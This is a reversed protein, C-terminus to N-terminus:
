KIYYKLSKSYLNSSINLILNSNQFSSVDMSFKSNLKSSQLQAGNISYIQLYLNKDQGLNSIELQKGIQIIELNEKYYEDAIAAVHGKSKYAIEITNTSANYTMFILHWLDGNADRLFYSKNTTPQQSSPDYWKEAIQNNLRSIPEMSSISNNYVVSSTDGLVEYAETSVIGYKLYDPPLGSINSFRILNYANNTMIGMPFTTSGKQYRKFVLDWDKLNPEFVSSISVSNLNLYQYHKTQTAQKYVQIYKDGSNDINAYRITFIRDTTTRSYNVYYKGYSGDEKQILYIKNAYAVYFPDTYFKGIGIKFFLDTSGTYITDMAGMYAFSDNNLTPNSGLTDNINVSGFASTDKYIRWVRVNKADNVKGGLEHAENYLAIDWGSQNINSVTNTSLKLFSNFGEDLKISKVTYDVPASNQAFIKSTILLLLAFKRM